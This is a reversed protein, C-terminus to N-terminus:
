ISAGTNIAADLNQQRTVERSVVYAKLPKEFQAQIAELLQNNSGMGVINFAPDTRDGGGGDGNSGSAIAPSGGASSQFKQRAIMAVQAAGAAAALGAALQARILSTPDGVVLQSGYAKIVSSATDVLAMAIRVAKMVKFRKKEIQEQKVRLKEDNQAIQNQIVQRQNKSLKENQLRNNLENNIANTKNQEMTLEREFESDVFDGIVSLVKKATEAYEAYRELQALLKVDDPAEFNVPIEISGVIEPNKDVVDQLSSAMGSLDLAEVKPKLVLATKTIKDISAQTADIEVQLEVFKERTTSIEKQQKELESKHKQLGTVSGKLSENFKDEAEKLVRIKDVADSYIKIRKLVLVSLAKERKENDKLGTIRGIEVLREAEKIEENVKLIDEASKKSIEDTKKRLESLEVYEEIKENVDEQTSYLTSLTKELENLSTKFGDASEEAKKAGGSFFDFLAIVGQFAILVGAPGVLGKLVTGIAGKFGLTKGTATDTAKSMFFLNSALQQLNNAVGRIGYPMDSLVRGLELTASTGAGVASKGQTMAKTMKKQAVETDKEAKAVRRLTSEYDKSTKDLKSLALNADNLEKQANAKEVKIRILIDKDVAM